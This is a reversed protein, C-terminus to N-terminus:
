ATRGAGGRSPSWPWICFGSSEAGDVFRSEVRRPVLALEGVGAVHSGGFAWMLMFIAATFGALRVAGRRDGRERRINHRALLVAAVLLLVAMGLGIFAFTRLNSSLQFSQM